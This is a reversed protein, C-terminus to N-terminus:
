NDDFAVKQIIEKIEKQMKASSLENTYSNVRELEMIKRRMEALKKADIETTM